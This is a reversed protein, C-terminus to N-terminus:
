DEWEIAPCNNQKFAIMIDKLFVIGRWISRFFRGVWIFPWKIFLLFSLWGFCFKFGKAIKKRRAECPICVGKLKCSM